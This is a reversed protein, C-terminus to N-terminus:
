LWYSSGLELGKGPTQRVWQMSYSSFTFGSAKCILSLAGGPTQLARRLVFGARVEEVRLKTVMRGWREWRSRKAAM